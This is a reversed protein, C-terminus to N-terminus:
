TRRRARLDMALAYVGKAAGSTTVTVLREPAGTWPPTTVKVAGMM